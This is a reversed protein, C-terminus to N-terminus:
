EETDSQEYGPFTKLPWEIRMGRAGALLWMLPVHSLVAYKKQLRQAVYWPYERLLQFESDGQGPSRITFDLYDPGFNMYARVVDNRFVVVDGARLDDRTIQRMRSLLEYPPLLLAPELGESECSTVLDASGYFNKLDDGVSRDSSGVQSSAVQASAVQSSGVQSSGVQSSGGSCRAFSSGTYSASEGDALLVLPARTGNRLAVFVQFSDLACSGITHPYSRSRLHRDGGLCFGEAIPTAAERAIPGPKVPTGLLRSGDRAFNAVRTLVDVVGPNASVYENISKGNRALEQLLALEESNLEPALSDRFVGIRNSIKRKRSWAGSSTHSVRPGEPSLQLVLGKRDDVPVSSTQALARLRALDGRSCM